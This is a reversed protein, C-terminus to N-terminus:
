LQRGVTFGERIADISKRPAMADGVLHLEPVKGRLSLYLANNAVHHHALVISDVDEIAREEKTWVDAVIVTRGRVEKLSTSPSMQVKRSGLRRLLNVRAYSEVDLGIAGVPTIMTVQKGQEAVFLAATLFKEADM